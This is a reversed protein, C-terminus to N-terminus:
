RAEIEFLPLIILLSSSVTAPQAGRSSLFSYFRTSDPIHWYGNVIDVQVSCTRTVRHSRSSFFFEAHHSANEFFHFPLALPSSVRNLIEIYIYRSPHRGLMLWFGTASYIPRFLSIAPLLFSPLSGTRRGADSLNSGLPKITFCQSPEISSRHLSPGTM